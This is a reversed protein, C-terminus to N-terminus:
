SASRWGDPGVVLDPALSAGLDEHSTACVIRCWRGRVWRRLTHAVSSATVRDLTSCCEDIVILPPAGAGRGAGARAMALAVALRARQGESLEGARRAWLRAEGLGAASLLRLTALLPLAFLDIVPRDAPVRGHLTSADVVGVRRRRAEARVARLLSSKGCGSPGTVLTITGAPQALVREVLSEDAHARTTPARREVALGFPALARLLRESVPGTCGVHPMAPNM